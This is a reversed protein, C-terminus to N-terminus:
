GNESNLFKDTNAAVKKFASHLLDIGLEDLLDNVYSPWKLKKLEQLATKATSNDYKICSTKIVNLKERLFELDSESIKEQPEEKIEPSSYKLVVSRLSNIFAPTLNKIEGFNRDEGALELKFAIGSLEKEGMNALTSKMGHVTIIFSSIDDKNLSDIRGFLDDLHEIANQADKIFLGAMEPSKILDQVDLGQGAAAANLLQKANQERRAAEIVENPQKNRIFDNLFLNLERSDIPKSIFGDFGNKMFMEARGVLANATLAIIANKYGMERLIKTAEVGDMRPMMHDMFVIDYVGGAKIKDIAEFGSSATDINLGYPLLMGRTVYINSDVDDVVLVKGYPMYERMFRTKQIITTDLFHFNQLKNTLERGCVGLGIRKQPIRVIFKSGKGPESTVDIAGKMLDLLRKTITMGLGAGVTTRNIELNFRAYEEFLKELQEETMGQGTDSITFVLTVDDGSSESNHDATVSFEIKGESTYKFANSLINNLIQKIRLEDGFLDVPTNPDVHLLFEIPKSDYRLRNLQVTDNILSPIDYKAPLIEMKGSEIKSLDLIDNIINLLLDGSEYIKGFAELTHQSHSEDRIEIEAVGLIANMPTRIEHSMHSLFVSKSRNSQEAQEKAYVLEGAMENRIVANILMRSASRLILVEDDKFIREAKCHDFGVFGWFNDQLFVPAVFISRINRSSLAAQESPSMDRVLTNICSGQTLQENWSPHDELLIDPSLIGESAQSKFVGNELQYVLSFRKKEDISSNRWICIRDVGSVGAIIGMSQKLTDDFHGIDPELLSSSVSNVTKLLVNQRDIENTMKTHERMDRISAVIIKGSGYSVCELTVISPIPTGDLMQHTWNFVCKGERVAQIGNSIRMDFSRQGNPQFKPSLGNEFYKIFDQKNELEFLRLTETNCDYVVGSENGIFCAIPLTDLMVRTREHEKLLKKSQHKNKLLIILILVVIICALVAAGIIWPIRAEIIQAQYDYTKTLWQEVIIGTDIVTLAKDVISRLVQQDKNYAFASEYYYNFLYNAKYGSFEFYNSYYLLKSKAAMVMDVLGHEMAYFAADATDFDVTFLANPFWKIFIEAHATNKVLAIRQYPIENISVNPFENKSILAYQDSMLKRDAWIFHPQRDASFVLDSFIHARGDILMQILEFMETKENNYVDFSLGTIEEAERFLDFTIGDWKKEYQNYFVIPYNFYQAAVPVSVTNALYTKEEATLSKYFRFRRYQDYGTNYLSNLYTIASDDPNRLAKNLISIVAEMAPNITIMSVPSYTLPFFDDHIIDDYAIFNAEAARTTILADADGRKLVEYAESYNNVWVAEYTDRGMVSAIASETPSSVTFAYRPKQEQSAEAANATQWAGKRGKLYTIIFQREAIPDSVYYNKIREDGSLFYISFDIEGSNLKDALDVWEFLRINFDIGFIKSLWDCFLAAYGNVEGHEDNFFSETSPTTGFILSSRTKQLAEIADIEQSTVGPIERFTKIESYDISADLAGSCGCIIVALSLLVFNKVYYNKM